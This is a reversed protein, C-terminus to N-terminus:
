CPTLVPGPVLKLSRNPRRAYRRRLSSSWIRVLAAGAVGALVSEISPKVRNHFGAAAM